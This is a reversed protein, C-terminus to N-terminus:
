SLVDPLKEETVVDQKGTKMNGVIITGQADFKIVYPIQKKQAYKIKKGLDTNEELWIETNIGSKRLDSAIKTALEDNETILVRTTQLDAPFLGLEDMAEIIRDFGFAFGVAPIDTNSFLGILKDYRGGGGVSGATYNEIEVEFIIGTYYDLGRILTSDYKLDNTSFGMKQFADMVKVIRETPEMSTVKKLLKEADIKELGREEMLEKLVGVEQIKNLKDITTLYKPNIGELIARDNIRIKTKLGLKNLSSYVVVLIEVDSMISSAGVTDIDCQLFERFRGKQTNEARFVNQIQYRKFPMPLTNENEAVVRALPVTQDYRMAVKREGRDEFRYMLLDGEEGYKGELIEAYELTPTELPEFGYSEFVKKLIEIVYQRKRAQSPLFDRFGKLTKPTIKM